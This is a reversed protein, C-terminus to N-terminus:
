GWKVYPSVSSLFVKDLAVWSAPELAVNSSLNDRGDM